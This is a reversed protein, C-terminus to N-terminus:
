SFLPNTAFNYQFDLSFTLLVGLIIFVIGGILALSQNLLTVTKSSPKILMKEAFRRGYYVILAFLLTTTATGISMFLTALIGWYYVGTIYSFVLVLLAGSCPRMGIALIIAADSYWSKSQAMENATPIHRHGCSCLSNSNLQGPNVQIHYRSNTIQQRIKLINLKKTSALIAIIKIIARVSLLTGIFVVVLYSALELWYESLRLQKTSLKLLIILISIMAIAIIGQMLASLLTLLLSKKFKSPQTALYTMIIIKGHGPGASHVVGYIFSLGVLLLGAQLPTSKVKILLTSLLQHFHRQWQAITTILEQWNIYFVYGMSVLFVMVSVLILLKIRM